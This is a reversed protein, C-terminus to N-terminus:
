RTLGFLLAPSWGSRKTPNSSKESRARIRYTKGKKVTVPKGNNGFLGELKSTKKRWYKWDGSGVKYQVDFQDGTATSQSAWEVSVVPDFGRKRALPSLRPSVAVEGDMGGSRTGHLDCYYHYTGASAIVDFPAHDDSIAGSYFLKSDQRVNHQNITGAGWSWRFLNDVNVEGSSQDPSFVDQGGAEVTIEQFTGAEAVAPILAGACLAVAAARLVRRM